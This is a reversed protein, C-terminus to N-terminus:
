LKYFGKITKGEIKAGKTGYASEIDIAYVHADSATEVSVYAKGNEVLIPSTYRKAHLPVNEVETINQSELDIIVLKQNIVTKYYAGWWYDPNNPYDETIIRALVKNNGVYDFWFLSGGNTKETVNIFFDEDFDQTDNNIKLIGSPKTAAPYYGALTTSGSYSYLNGNDAKILGTTHGNTGINSTREDTIIKIPTVTADSTANLIDNYNYVAVYAKNPDPTSYNGASDHLLFPIYFYGNSEKLATAWAQVGLTENEFINLKVKKSVEGTEVDVVVLTKHQTGAYFNDLAYFTKNDDSHGYMQLPNEFTFRNKEVIQGLDNSEYSVCRNDDVYGAVFLTKGVPYYFRWGVQEVGQGQASITGNLIDEQSVIYETEDGGTTKLAMSFGSSIIEPDQIDQSPNDDELIQDDESCSTFLGISILALYWLSNKIQRQRQKKM